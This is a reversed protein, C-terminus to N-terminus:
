SQRANSLASASYAYSILLMLLARMVKLVKLTVPLIWNVVTTLQMMSSQLCKMSNHNESTTTNGLNAINEIDANIAIDLPNDDIQDAKETSEDYSFSDM